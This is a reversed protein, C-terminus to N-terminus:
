LQLVVFGEPSCARAPKTAVTGCDLMYSVYVYKCINIYMNVYIYMIMYVEPSCVTELTGSHWLIEHMEIM